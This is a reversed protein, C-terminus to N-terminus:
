VKGFIFQSVLEELDIASETDSITDGSQLYDESGGQSIKIFKDGIIGQTKVSAIADDTIKIGKELDMSVLALDDSDLRIDAVRGISVGAMAVNAGKKLGTINEFEAKVLYYKGSSFLSFEGFQTSLYAFALFGALLFLGVGIELSEKRM